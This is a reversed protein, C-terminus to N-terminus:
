EGRAGAEGRARRRPAPDLLGAMAGRMLDVAEPAECEIVQSIAWTQDHAQM